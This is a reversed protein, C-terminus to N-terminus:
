QCALNAKDNAGDKGCILNLYESPPSISFVGKPDKAYIANAFELFEARTCNQLFSKMRDVAAKGGGDPDANMATITDKCIKTRESSSASAPTEGSAGSTTTVTASDSSGCSMLGLSLMVALLVAAKTKM